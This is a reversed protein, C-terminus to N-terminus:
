AKNQSRSASEASQLAAVCERILSPGHFILGTYLQVLSAGAQLKGVADRGSVIGGAGIIPLTSGLEARLWGIVADSKRRLPRGSLGGRQEAHPSAEIGARATTTNTAIVGDMQARVLTQALEKVQERVIDPAIKIVIPVYRGHAQALEARARKIGTLLGDLADGSQLARLAETNPSSINVTVYDALAYVARLCTVYDELARENPTDANKGINIGLIGPYSAKQINAVLAEVGANNFGLRNIIAQERVLRFVRPRPNGPQPRPTVTGVEVSGFGLAGLATLCAANKDLGAALGVPNPFDIGM